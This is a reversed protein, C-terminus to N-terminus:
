QSETRVALMNGIGCFSAVIIQQHDIPLRSRGVFHNAQMRPEKTRVLLANTVRHSLARLGHHQYIPLWFSRIIFNAAARREEARVALAHSIHGAGSGALMAFFELLKGDNIPLGSRGKVPDAFARRDET